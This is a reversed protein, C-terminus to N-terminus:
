KKTKTFLIDDSVDNRDKLELAKKQKKSTTLAGSSRNWVVVRRELHEYSRAVHYARFNLMNTITSEKFSFGHVIDGQVAKKIKNKWFTKNAFQLNLMSKRQWRNCHSTENLPQMRRASFLTSGTLTKLGQTGVYRWCFGLQPIGDRKAVMEALERITNTPSAIFEDDDVHLLFDIESINELIIRQIDLHQTSVRGNWNSRIHEVFVGFKDVENSIDNNKSNDLMIIRDIGQSQYYRCWEAIFDASDKTQTVIVIKTFRTIPNERPTTEEISLDISLEFTSYFILILLNLIIFNFLVSM